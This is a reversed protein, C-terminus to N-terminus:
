ACKDNVYEPMKPPRPNFNNNSVNITGKSCILTAPAQPGIYGRYPWYTSFQMSNNEITVDDINKLSIMPDDNAEPNKLASGHNGIFTYDTRRNTTEPGQVCIATHGWGIKSNYSYTIHDEIANAGYNSLTCFGSPGVQNGIFSVYQIRAAPFNAELDILSRRAMTVVSNKFTVHTALTVTWGMRSSDGFDSNEVLINTAPTNNGSGGVYVTDGWVHHASVHDLTLNTDGAINFGHQAELKSDYTGDPGTQTDGGDVNVGNAYVNTDSAFNWHSRGREPENCSPWPENCGPLNGKTLSFFTSGQGVIAIEHHNQLTLTGEIRYQGNVPFIIIRKNPVMALFYNLQDTVDKVGTSDITKPVSVMYPALAKAWIDAQSLTQTVESTAPIVTNAASAIEAANEVNTGDGNSAPTIVAPTDLTPDGSNIPDIPLDSVPTAPAINTTPAASPQVTTTAPPKTPTSLAPKAAAVPSPSTTGTRAANPTVANVQMVLFTSLITVGCIAVRKIM